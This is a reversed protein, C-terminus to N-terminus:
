LNNKEAYLAKLARIFRDKRKEAFKLPIGSKLVLFLKTQEIISGAKVNPIKERTYIGSEFPEDLKDSTIKIGLAFGGRYPEKYLEVTDDETVNKILDHDLFKRYEKVLDDTYNEPTGEPMKTYLNKNVVLNAKFSVPIM